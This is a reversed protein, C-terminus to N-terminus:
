FIICHSSNQIQEISITHKGSKLNAKLFSDELEAETKEGDVILYRTESGYVPVYVITQSNFPIEVEIEIKNEKLDIDSGNKYSVFVPGKITPVKIKAEPIGSPQLKISFLDFGPKLPLIGFMGQVISCGPSAGWPHSLTLNEKHKHGWAEPTITCKLDILLSVFTKFDKGVKPNSMLKIALDSKGVFLGKLIFYTVYVSGKFEEKCKEYVFRCMSESMEKSDFIEYALSYATSHTSSHRTPQLDKSISDFFCGNSKDYAIDIM